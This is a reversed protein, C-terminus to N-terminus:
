PYPYQLRFFVNTKSPDITINVNTLSTSGPYPFWQDMATLGVSNTMLTWGANTPWALSLTSGSVSVQIPGANTNVPSVVSTVNLAIWGNVMDNTLVGTFNAPTATLTPLSGAFSGYKILPYEGVAAIANNSSIAIACNGNVALVGTANVLPITTSAVNEFVNTTPGSSGLTLASFSAGVGNGANTVVLTTTDSLSLSGGGAHWTSFSITGASATTPGAYTNAGLLKITGRHVADNITVGASIDAGNKLINGTFDVEGGTAALLTVSKGTDTSAGLSINGTFANAGSTNQGGLVLPDGGLDQVAVNRGMTIGGAIGNVDTGGLLLSANGFGSGGLAVSVTSVTSAAGSNNLIVAGSNVAFGSSTVPGTGTLITPGWLIVTGSSNFNLGLGKTPANTLGVLVSINQSGQFIVSSSNGLASFSKIALDATDAFLTVSGGNGGFLDGLALKYNNNGEAAVGTGAVSWTLPGNLTLTSGSVGSAAQDVNFSVTTGPNIGGCTFVTSIDARLNITNGNAVTLVQGAGVAAPSGQIYLGGNDVIGGTAASNNGALTLIADAAIATTGSFSNTGSLITSGSNVALAAGNGALNATVSANTFAFSSGTLTGGSGIVSGAGIGVVGVTDSNTGMELVANNNIFLAGADALTNTSNGLRLKGTNLVTGGSYTNVGNLIIENGNDNFTLSHAGSIESNVTFPFGSNNGWAQDTSLAVKANIVNSAGSNNIGASISLTNAGEITVNNPTSLTLSHISFDAGLTTNFSSAADAAFTVDTPVAPPSTLAIGSSQDTDWNGVTSWNAGSRNHWFATAPAAVTVTLRLTSSDPSSLALTYGPLTNGLTFNSVSIGSAGTILDYTGAGFGTTQAIYITATGNQTFSSGGLAIQDSTSGIDFALVNANSLTLGGNLSFMAGSNNTLLIGANGASLTVLSGITGGGALAGAAFINVPSSSLVGNVTLIGNSITTLGTYSLTPTAGSGNLASLTWNGTGIKTIGVTSGSANNIINGNFVSSANLAGVEFNVTTNAAQDRLNVAGTGTSGTTNLDGLRITAPTNTANYQFNNNGSGTVQLDFVAQASGGINANNTNVYSITYSPTTTGTGQAIITGQFSSIDGGWNFTPSFSQNLTLTGSGTWPGISYVLNGSSNNQFNLVNGTGNVVVANSFGLNWGALGSSPITFGGNTNFVVPGYGFVAPNVVRDGLNNGQYITGGTHGSQFSGGFDDRTGNNGVIKIALNGAWFTNGLGSLRNNGNGLTIIAPAGGASNTVMGFGSGNYTGVVLNNGNLDLVGGANVTLGNTTNGLPGVGAGSAVGLRVTGHNIVSTGSNTSLSNIVMTGSGNMSFAATGTGIQANLNLTGAGMQHIIVESNNAAVMGNQITFGNGGTMIIGHSTNTMVNGPGGLDLVGAGGGADLALSNVGFSGGSMTVNGSTVYNINPATGSSPLATAGTYRVVSGTANTTAFGSTTSDKVVVSGIIGNALTPNANVTGGASMDLILTGAGSRTWTNGLTLATGLGGNDNLSIINGNAYTLTGLNTQVTSGTSKGKLSYIAGNMVVANTSLLNVPSIMNSFDLALETGAGLTTTNTYGNAIAGNLTVTAPLAYNIPTTAIVALPLFQNPAVINESLTLANNGTSNSIVSGVTLNGGPVVALTRSAPLWLTGGMFTVPTLSNDTINGGLTISNGANTVTYTSNTTLNFTMTLTTADALDNNLNTVASDNFVVTDASIPAVQSVWNLFNSLDQDSPANTWTQTAAELFPSFLIFAAAAAFTALKLRISKM